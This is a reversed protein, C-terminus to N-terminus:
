FPVSQVPETADPHLPLWYSQDWKRRKALGVHDNEFIRLILWLPLSAHSPIM